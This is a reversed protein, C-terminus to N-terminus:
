SPLLPLLQNLLDERASVYWGSVDLGRPLPEAAVRDVYAHLDPERGVVQEHYSVPDTHLDSMDEWDTYVNVGLQLTAPLDTREFVDSIEWDGGPERYLMVFATGGRVIALDTWGEAIPTLTLTSTSDVTTKTELNPVGRDNGVGSTLFVYNEGGPEWTAPTTDRPQRAMLGTCSYTKEPVPGKLGRSQVRATAVFDGTVERFLYPGHFDAYWATTWPILELSGDRVVVEQMADPWGEADHLWTWAPDLAKGDFDDAFAGELPNVAVPTPSASPTASETPTPSANPTDEVCATLALLYTAALVAVRARRSM